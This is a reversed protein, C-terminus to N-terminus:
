VIRVNGQYVRTVPNTGYFIKSVCQTGRYIKCTDISAYLIISISDIYGTYTSLYTGQNQVQIMFGWNVMNSMTLGLSGLGWTDTPSGYTQVAEASPFYIGTSKNNGTYNGATNVMYLANDRIQNAQNAYREVRVIIGDITWDYYDSYDAGFDFDYAYLCESSSGSNLTVSARTNDSATVNGPSTWATGTFNNSFSTSTAQQPYTIAPM